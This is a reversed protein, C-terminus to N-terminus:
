FGVPAPEPENLALGVLQDIFEWVSRKFKECGSQFALCTLILREIYRQGDRGFKASASDSAYPFPM